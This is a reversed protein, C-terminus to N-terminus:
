ALSKAALETAISQVATKVEEYGANTKLGTPEFPQRFTRYGSSELRSRVKSESVTPVKLLSCIEDISYSWPPFKDVEVLSSLVAVASLLGTNKAAKQAAVVVRHEMLPGLWLPGASKVKGGCKECSRELERSQSLHGCARCWAVHGIHGLASDSKTAGVKVRAFVRLYHRTAHAVVPEIGNDLPGGLRALAGVLIRIATEHHFHNNLPSAGYRRVCVKPYVGCLVATDTATISVIGEDETASLAAQLQRVPTGFPDVDVYDFKQDKGYRSYLYSTTETASFECKRRVGNLVAGKQALRLAERNFDVMSVRSIGEVEKAVRLGRAGVGAMSDCFTKGRTAVTVAVTIDRNLSAAPNFFVPSTPPPDETLSKSPVLLKTRGEVHRVSALKEETARRM